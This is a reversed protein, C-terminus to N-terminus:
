LNFHSGKMPRLIKIVKDACGGSFNSFSFKISRLLFVTYIYQMNLHKATIHPLTVRMTLSFDQNGKVELWWDQREGGCVMKDSGFGKHVMVEYDQVKVAKATRQQWPYPLWSIMFGHNIFSTHLLPMETIWVKKSIKWILTRPKLVMEWNIPLYHSVLSRKM